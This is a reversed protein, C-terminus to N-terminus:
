SVSPVASSGPRSYWFHLNLQARRLTSSSPVFATLQIFEVIALRIGTTAAGPGLDFWHLPLRQSTPSTARAGVGTSYVQRSPSASFSVSQESSREVLVTAPVGAGSMWGLRRWLPLYSTRGTNQIELAGPAEGTSPTLSFKISGDLAGEANLNDNTSAFRVHPGILPNNRDAAENSVTLRFLRQDNTGTVTLWSQPVIYQPDRAAFSLPYFMGGRGDNGWTRVNMTYSNGTAVTPTMFRESLIPGVGQPGKGRAQLDYATADALNTFSRSTQNGIDTWAGYSSATSVKSRVEYSTAAPVAAWALTLSRYRSVSRDGDLTLASVGGRITQTVGASAASTGFSNKARIQVTFSLNDLTAFQIEYEDM